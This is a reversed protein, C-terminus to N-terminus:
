LETIELSEETAIALLLSELESFEADLPDTWELDEAAAIETAPSDAPTSRPGQFSRVGLLLALAAAAALASKWAPAFAPKPAQALRAAIRAAAAPAPRAAPVPIANALGRLQARAQRAAPSAALEADLQRQQAPSLEGSQELLLLQELQSPNM